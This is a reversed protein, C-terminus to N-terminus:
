NHKIMESLPKSSSLFDKSYYKDTYYEDGDDKLPLKSPLDKSSQLAAKESYINSNLNINPSPCRVTSSSTSNSRQFARFPLPSERRPTQFGSSFKTPTSNSYNRHAVIDYGRQTTSTTVPSARTRSFVDYQNTELPSRNIATSRYKM